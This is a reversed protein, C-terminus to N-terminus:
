KFNRHIYVEIRRNKKQNEYNYKGDPHFNPVLPHSDALAIARIRKQPIGSSILKKVVNTSRHASLEWNSQYLATKIPINDTHGEVKIIYDEYNSDKIAKAILDLIPLMTNKLEASGLKFLIHSSFRLHLGLPDPTISIKDKLQPEEVIDNLKEQMSSFPQESETRSFTESIGSTMQEVKHQDITSMSLLVVFFCMLLTISDAYTGLWSEDSEVGKTEKKKM